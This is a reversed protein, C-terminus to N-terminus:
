ACTLRSNIWLKRLVALPFWARSKSQIRMLHNAMTKSLGHLELILASFNVMGCVVRPLDSDQRSLFELGFCRFFMLRENIYAGYAQACDEVALIYHDALDIIPVM